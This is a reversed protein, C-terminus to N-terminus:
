RYAQKSRAVHVYIMFFFVSTGYIMFGLSQAFLGAPAGSATVSALGFFATVVSLLFLIVTAIMATFIYSIREFSSERGVLSSFVIASFGFFVGDFAILSQLMARSNIPDVVSPLTEAIKGVGVTEVGLILLLGILSVATFRKPNTLYALWGLRLTRAKRIM